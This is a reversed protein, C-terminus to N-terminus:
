DTGSGTGCPSLSRVRPGRKRRRSTGIRASASEGTWATSSVLKRDTKMPRDSIRRSSRLASFVAQVMMASTATVVSMAGWVMLANSVLKKM